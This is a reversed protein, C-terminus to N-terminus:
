LFLCFFVCFWCGADAAANGRLCLPLCGRCVARIVEKDTSKLVGVSDNCSVGSLVLENIVTNLYSKENRM